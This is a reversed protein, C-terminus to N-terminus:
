AATIIQSRLKSLKTTNFSKLAEDNFGYISSYRGRSIKIVRGEDYLSKNASRIEIPDIKLLNVLEAFTPTGAVNIAALTLCKIFDERKEAIYDEYYNPSYNKTRHGYLANSFYSYSYKQSLYKYLLVPRMVGSLVSSINAFDSYIINSNHSSSILSLPGRSIYSESKYFNSSLIVFLRSRINNIMSFTGLEAISGPSELMLITFDAEHAFDAELTQLDVGRRKFRDQELDEGYLAKVNPYSELHSKIAERIRFSGSGIGPGCLFVKLSQQFADEKLIRPDWITPHLKM